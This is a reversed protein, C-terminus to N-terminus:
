SKRVNQWEPLAVQYKKRYITFGILGMGVLMLAWEGPEPAATVQDLKAKLDAGINNTTVGTVFNYVGSTIAFSMTLNANSGLDFANLTPSNLATGAATLALNTVPNWTITGTGDVGASVDLSYATTLGTLLDTSYNNAASFVNTGTTTLNVSTAGTATFKYQVGSGANWVLMNGAAALPDGM